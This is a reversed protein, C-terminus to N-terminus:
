KVVSEGSCNLYILNKLHNVSTVYKNNSLDLYKLNVYKEQEIEKQTITESKLWFLTDLSNDNFISEM